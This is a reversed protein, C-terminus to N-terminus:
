GIYMVFNTNSICISYRCVYNVVIFDINDYKIYNVAILQTKTRKSIKTPEKLTITNTIRTILM